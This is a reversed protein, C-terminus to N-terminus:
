VHKFWSYQNNLRQEGTAKNLGHRFVRSFFLLFNFRTMPLNLGQKINKIM